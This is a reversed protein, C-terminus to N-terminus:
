SLSQWPQQSFEIGIALNKGFRLDLREQLSKLVDQVSMRRSIQFSAGSGSKTPVRCVSRGFPRVDEPGGLHSATRLRCCLTWGGPRFRRGEARQAPGPDLKWDFM